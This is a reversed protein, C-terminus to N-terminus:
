RASNDAKPTGGPIISTKWNLDAIREMTRKGTNDGAPWAPAALVLDQIQCDPDFLYLAENSNALNGTYVADALVGPITSDDTRELLYFGGPLVVSGPRFSIKIGKDKNQLQWGGIDIKDRFINKLEIWEDAHSKDTGMWAVENIIVGPSKIKAEAFSCWAVPPAKKPASKGGIEGQSASNSKKEPDGAAKSATTQSGSNKNEAGDTRPKIEIWQQSVQDKGLLFDKNKLGLAFGGALLGASLLILLVLLYKGMKFSCGRGQRLQSINSSKRSNKLRSVM